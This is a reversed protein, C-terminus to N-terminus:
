PAVSLESREGATCANNILQAHTADAPLASCDSLSTRGDDAECFGHRCTTGAACGSSSTCAVCSAPVTGVTSEFYCGCPDAPSFPLLDGGEAKRTVAMACIPVIGSKAVLAVPDIGTPLAPNVNNSLIDIVLKATPNAVEPAGGDVSAAKALYVLQNWAVYHGDRLNRKDFSTVRSDPM